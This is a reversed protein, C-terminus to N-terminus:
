NSKRVMTLNEPLTLNFPYWHLESQKNPICFITFLKSQNRTNARTKVYFHLCVLSLINCGDISQRKGDIVSETILYKFELCYQYSLSLNM